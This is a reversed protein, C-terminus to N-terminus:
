LRPLEAREEMLTEIRKLFEEQNISGIETYLYVLNLIDRKLEETM